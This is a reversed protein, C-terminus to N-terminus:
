TSSLLWNPNKSKINKEFSWLDIKKRVTTEDNNKFQESVFSITITIKEKQVLVSEIKEINLSFFKCKQTM